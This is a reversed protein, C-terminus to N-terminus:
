SKASGGRKYSLYKRVVPIIDYTDAIKLAISIMDADTLTEIDAKDFDDLLDNRSISAIDFSKTWFAKNSDNM